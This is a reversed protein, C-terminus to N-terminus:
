FDVSEINRLNVEYEKGEFEITVEGDDDVNVPRLPKEPDNDPFNKITTAYVVGGSKICKLIDEITILSGEQNNMKKFEEFIKIYKM